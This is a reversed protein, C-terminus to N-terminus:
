ESFKFIPRNISNVSIIPLDIYQKNLLNDTMPISEMQKQRM